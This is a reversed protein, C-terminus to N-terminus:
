RKDKDAMLHTHHCCIVDQSVEESGKNGHSDTDEAAKDETFFCFYQETVEGPEGVLIHQPHLPTATLWM